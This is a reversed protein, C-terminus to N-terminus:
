NFLSQMVALSKIEGFHPLHLRYYDIIREIIRIRDQRSFAYLSMNEYSIRLMRQLITSELRNLYHNHVPIRDIFVGNLMDFYYGRRHSDTQPFFGMYRPLGMLFVLHFNAIGQESEELIRTSQVLFQFLRADPETERIVRYLIESVFLAVVNKIPNCAINNTPMSLRCEKIRQLERKPQHEVELELLSLPMFLAKSLTSKKGRGRSTLYSVRGFQETYMYIIAQKDNFPLSHLVIARTKSLM